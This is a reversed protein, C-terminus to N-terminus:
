QTYPADFNFYNYTARSVDAMLPSSTAWELWSNQHLYQVLVYDGNPSFIIGVDGHTDSGWGHKHAVPTGPPVGEETLSGIVNQAMIQLIQQCEEQTIQGEFAATLGGGGWQACDYLMALLSGMDEATTQMTPTPSTTIAPQSNAPTELNTKNPRPQGDYPAVLYTNALGLRLMTETVMDAGIFPNEQGAILNLLQNASENDVDLLSNTVLEIQSESLPRDLVRMTEVVIPLKLITLGSLPADANINIEDGTQLDLIFISAVGGFNDLHNVILNALLNMNPRPPVVPEVILRAERSTPSYLAAEVDNLSALVNTRVGQEGYLFSLTTPVPQPPQPSKDQTSAITELTAQLTARNHTARLEVMELELPLGLIYGMFGQWYDQQQRQFSAQSLMTEFDLEFGADQRPNIEQRMNGHFVVVPADLYRNALAARVQEESYGSVNINAITMGTPMYARVNSYEILKYLILAAIAIIVTTILWQFLGPQNRRNM